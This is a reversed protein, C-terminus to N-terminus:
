YIRGLYLYFSNRGAEAQGYAVFLPGIPSDVGMFVSGGYRLKEYMDQRRDWTNGAELSVGLFVPMGLLIDRQGAMHRWVSLRASAAHQGIFEDRHYGSLSFLGGVQHQRHLPLTGSLTTELNARIGFTYLGFSRLIAGKASGTEYSTDGGFEPGAFLWQAEALAGSRPFLASDLSDYSFRSYVMGDEFDYGTVTSGRIEGSVIGESRQIGVLWEANAGFHVGTDIKGGYEKTNYQATRAGNDYISSPTRSMAVGPTVFTLSRPDLPQFFESSLGSETGIKVENRWAGGYGNLENWTSTAHLTYNGKGKFDDSLRLGFQLINPGWSKKRATIILAAGDGRKELTYQITEFILTGYIRQLDQKLKTYDLRDGTKTSLRQEITSDALNSNNNIVIEEIVPPPGPERRQRKKFKTYEEESVTLKSLSDSRALATNYGIEVAENVRGFDSSSIDGLEPLLLIDQGLNLKALQADRSRKMLITLVQETVGFLSSIEEAKLLPSGIDVVILIDAGMDQVVDVPVNAVIMGDVLDRGDIPVPSFAGPVSMSAQLARAFNGDKLVVRKGTAIEAAVARFPIPLDDFHSYRFANGSLSQLLFSFNQGQILGKPLQLALDKIGLEFDIMFLLSEKKRLFELNERPPKDQLMFGWELRSFTKELWEPSRGLSYFGGVIAGMSTGAVYDIPIRLEELRKLVGIHASGRAGGGSLVLGIKPRRTVPLQEQAGLPTCLQAATIGLFLLRCIFMRLYDDLAVCFALSPQSHGSVSLEGHSYLRM